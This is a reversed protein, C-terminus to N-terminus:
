RAGTPHLTFPASRLAPSGPLRASLRLPEALDPTADFVLLGTAQGGPPLPRPSLPPTDLLTLALEASSARPYVQGAHDELTFAAATLDLPASSTNHVDAVVIVFVGVPQAALHLPLSSTLTLATSATPLAGEAQTYARTVHLQAAGPTPTAVVLPRPLLPDGQPPACGALILLALGLISVAIKVTTRM